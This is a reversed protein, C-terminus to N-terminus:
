RSRDGCSAIPQGSTHRAQAIKRTLAARMVEHMESQHETWRDNAGLLIIREPDDELLPAYLYGVKGQLVEVALVAIGPQQPDVVDHRFSWEGTLLDNPDEYTTEGWRPTIAKWSQSFLHGRYRHGDPRAELTIPFGGVGTGRFVDRDTFARLFAHNFDQHGGKESHRKLIEPLITCNGVCTERLPDSVKGEWIRRLEPSPDHAAVIFDISHDRTNTFERLFTLVGGLGGDRYIKPTRRIAHLAPDSHGSYAISLCNNIIVAKLRGPISNHRPAEEDSIMTDSLLVIVDAFQKGIIVTM